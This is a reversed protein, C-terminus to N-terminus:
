SLAWVSEPERDAKPTSRRSRQDRDEVQISAQWIKEVLQAQEQMENNLGM